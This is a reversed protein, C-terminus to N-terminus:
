EHEGEMVAKWMDERKGRIVFSVTTLPDWLMGTFLSGITLGIMLGFITWADFETLDNQVMYISVFLGFYAPILLYGILRRGRNMKKIYEHYEKLEEITHEKLYEKYTKM